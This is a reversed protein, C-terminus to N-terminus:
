PSFPAVVLNRRKLLDAYEQSLFYRLETERQGTLSDVAQLAIDVIGPHCMVLTRDAAGTIFRRFLDGYPVKGSFDYVGRFGANQRIGHRRARSRTGTGSGSIVLTRLPSIRRAVIRALPDHCSRLWARSRDLRSTFLDFVVDRVIPLQHVHHHGDIFAPPAGFAAVFADFQRTLEEAIEDKDLRGRFSRAMLAGVSPLRGRPALDPMKGLPTQDTLTLHLGIDARAALPKLLHAYDPWFPSVSMCGTASLRGADILEAIARSVGPALGFDDACLILRTPEAAPTM